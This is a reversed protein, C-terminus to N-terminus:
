QVYALSVTGYAGGQARRPRPPPPPTSVGCTSCLCTPSITGDACYIRGDAACSNSIGGQSSCCGPCAASAQSSWGAALFAAMLWAPMPVRLMQVESAFWLHRKAPIPVRTNVKPLRGSFHTRRLSGKAPLPELRELYMGRRPFRPRHGSHTCDRGVASAVKSSRNRRQSLRIVQLACGIKSEGAGQVFARPSRLKSRLRSRKLLPDPGRAALTNSLKYLMRRRYSTIM